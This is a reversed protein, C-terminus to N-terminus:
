SKKEMGYHSSHKATMEDTKVIICVDTTNFVKDEVAGDGFCGNVRIYGKILTPMHPFLEKDNYNSIDAENMPKHLHPLAYPRIEEPALYNNYLYSLHNAHDKYNSGEFSACGFMIEVDYRNVYAAIGKWLLQLTLRNRYNPHTCSRGLEMIEGNYAKLKDINYESESYFGKGAPLNAKRLLRYSGVVQGTELDKCILHDCYEDFEDFDRKAAECEPKPKAGIEGCFVDYRLRQSAEIEAKNDAIKIQLDNVEIPEFHQNAM